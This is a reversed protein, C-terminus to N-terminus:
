RVTGRDPYGNGVVEILEELAKSIQEMAWIYGRGAIAPAMEAFSWRFAFDHRDFIQALVQRNAHWRSQICNYSLIKDLSIALYTLAAKDIECLDGSQASLEDM